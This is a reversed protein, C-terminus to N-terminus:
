RFSSSNKPNELEKGSHSFRLGRQNGFSRGPNAYAIDPDPDVMGVLKNNKVWKLDTGYLNKIMIQSLRSIINSYKPDGFLDQNETPDKHLNFLQFRNGAPYYILKYQKDRIMRTARPDEWLEGYIYDRKNTGLMSMGEVSQPTPIDCIDAITPFIDAQVVLRDDVTNTKIEKNNAPPLLIMPINCSNEYFLGKAYLGHNGLMDGHDSTFMVLTDDFINEERLLGIVLRIQHDIHTSLAYFAQRASKIAEDNYTHRGHPRVKLAYPLEEYNKSWESYFPPDTEISRYYDMYCSLPVLPPHPPSFSMYWFGPKRPDRRAIYKCTERVTWNIQHLHEPLHWPRTHYDNNSIGHSWEQGSYGQEQLYLEYDDKNLGFQYRGEELLMVDQFGLRNRQPYVHLKGVGYSQYGHETLTQAITPLDPMPLTENFNRDGHTKATAGTMMERRAPICIPTSSYANTFAVGSGIMQDLTPALITPHGLAGILTGFWHDVSILLVNPKNPL